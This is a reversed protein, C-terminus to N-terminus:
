RQDWHSVVSLRYPEEWDIEEDGNLEPRNQFVDDGSNLVFGDLSTEYSLADWRVPRTDKGIGLIGGFSMVAVKIQGSEKEIVLHEIQGVKEGAPRFVQKGIVEHSEILDSQDLTADNESPREEDNRALERLSPAVLDERQTNVGGAM